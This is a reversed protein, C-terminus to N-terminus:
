VRNINEIVKVRDAVNIIEEVSVIPNPLRNMGKEIARALMDEGQAKSGAQQGYIPVGGGAQNFASLIPAFMSTAKATMVSEGNSLMAPISDSTASGEGTVDGGTAFKASKVTKIANAMNAIVTAVTTAIAALNQPFGIKVAEAVGSSIAAGTDIAIQALALVKSAIASAKSSDDVAEILSILSGAVKSMAQLKAQEIELEKDAREQQQREQEDNFAKILANSKAQYEAKIALKLEEDNKIQRLEENMELENIKLKLDLENKSSSEIAALRAGALRKQREYEKKFEEDDQKANEQIKKELNKLEADAKKQAAEEAAQNAKAEAKIQNIAETRQAYLERTKNSLETDTRIVEAKAEALRNNMDADNETLSAEKELLSLRDEALVKNKKAQEAELAIVRDLMKLRENATYRDKDAVKARLDAIMREREASKTIEDRSKKTYEQRARELEARKVMADNVEQMSEAFEGEKGVLAILWNWLKNAGEVVNLVEAAIKTLWNQVIDLIGNLPALAIRWRNTQEESSQIAKAIGNVASAVIAIGLIFPNAMLFKLQAGFNMVAQTATGFAGKVSNMYNGVNRYFRGTSEEADKIEETIKNIHKQLEKGKATKREERSLSDYEATLNSLSARLGKLSTDKSKDSRISENVSKTVIRIAENYQQAKLKSATMEENYQQRTIKGSDLQEKLEKESAKLDEIKQKYDAIKKIALEYDVKITLIKEEVDKM